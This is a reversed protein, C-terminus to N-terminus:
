FFLSTTFFFAAVTLTHTYTHASRLSKLLADADVFRKTEPHLHVPVLTPDQQNDSDGHQEYSNKVGIVTM